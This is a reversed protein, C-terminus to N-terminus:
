SVPPTGAKKTPNTGPTMVDFGFINTAGIALPVMGLALLINGAPPVAGLAGLAEWLFGIALMIFGGTIMKLESRFPGQWVSVTKGVGVAAGISIIFGMIDLIFLM